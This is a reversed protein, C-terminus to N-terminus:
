RDEDAQAESEQDPTLKSKKGTLHQVVNFLAAKMNPKGLLSRLRSLDTTKSHGIAALLRPGSNEKLVGRRVLTAAISQEDKWVAPDSEDWRLVKRCAEHGRNSFNLLFRRNHVDAQSALTFAQLGSVELESVAEHHPPPPSAVLSLGFPSSVPSVSRPVQGGRIQSPAAATLGDLPPPRHKYPKDKNHGLLDQM